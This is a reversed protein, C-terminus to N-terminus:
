DHNSCAPLASRAFLRKRWIGIPCLPIVPSATQEEYSIASGKLTGIAKRIEGNAKRFTFEVVGVSMQAKIKMAQWAKRLAEAITGVDKRKLIAWAAKMVMSKSVRVNNSAITAM